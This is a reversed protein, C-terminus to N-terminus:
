ASRLKARTAHSGEKHVCTLMERGPLQILTIRENTAQPPDGGAHEQGSVLNPCAQATCAPAFCALAVLELPAPAGAAPWLAAGLTFGGGTAACTRFGQVAREYSDCRVLRCTGPGSAALMGKMMSVDHQQRVGWGGVRDIADEQGKFTVHLFGRTDM